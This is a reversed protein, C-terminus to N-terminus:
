NLMKTEYKKWALLYTSILSLDLPHCVISSHALGEITQCADFRPKTQSIMKASKLIIPFWSSVAKEGGQEFLYNEVMVLWNKDSVAETAYGCANILEFLRQWSISEPNVLHFTKGLLQKQRSLYVIAKSAYDIPIINIDVDFTPFKELKICIQIFRFFFNNLKRYIGTKSDGMIRTPRYISVPLGRKQALHILEEAVWKSQKYGTNLSPSFLPFDTERIPTDQRQAQSFFIAVTSIFHVPKTKRLGALKLIEQTGLVNVTKMQSYPTIPDNESGNHYIVDIETALQCFEKESLGLLPQALDGVMPIIRADFHQQWLQYSQLNEKLRQKGTEVTHCRILCYINATTQDLLERLLYAGLFGTAGTLFISKPEDFNDKLPSDFSIDPNLIAETKLDPICEQNSM